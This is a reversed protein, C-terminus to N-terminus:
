DREIVVAAQSEIVAIAHTAADEVEHLWFGFTSDAMRGRFTASRLGVMKAFDARRTRVPPDNRRKAPARLCDNDEASFPGSIKMLHVCM